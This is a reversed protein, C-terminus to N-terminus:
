KPIRCKPLAERLEKKGADTILTKSLGLFTLQKLEKLEKLGADTISTGFLDLFTLRKFEKLEKMGEDTVETRGLDLRILQQLGKLHKLGADTVRTDFLNLSTLQQLDKIQKIQEDTARPDDLELGFFVEVQPLPKDSLKEFRFIPLSGGTKGQPKVQFFYIGPSEKELVGYKAGLKEYAAITEPSPEKFTEKEEAHLLPGAYAIMLVM